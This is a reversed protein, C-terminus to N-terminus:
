SLCQGIYVNTEECLRTVIKMEELSYLYPLWLLSSNELMVAPPSWSELRPWRAGTDGGWLGKLYSMRIIQNSIIQGEVENVATHSGVRVHWPYSLSLSLASFDLCIVRGKSSSQSEDSLHQVHCPIPVPIIKLLCRKELLEFYKPFYM